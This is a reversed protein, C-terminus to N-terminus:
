SIVSGETTIEYAPDPFPLPPPLETNYSSLDDENYGPLDDDGSAYGPLDNNIDEDNYSPLPAETTTTRAEPQMDTVIEPDVQTKRTRLFQKSKSTFTSGGTSVLSFSSPSLGVESGPFNTELVDFNKIGAVCEFSFCSLNTKPKANLLLFTQHRVHKM